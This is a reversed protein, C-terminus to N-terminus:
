NFSLQRKPFCKEEIEVISSYALYFDLMSASAQLKIESRISGVRFISASYEESVNM